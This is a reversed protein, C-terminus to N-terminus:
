PHERGREGATVSPTRIEESHWFHAEANMLGRVVEWIRITLGDLEKPHNGSQPSAQLGRSELWLVCLEKFKSDGFCCKEACRVRVLGALAALLVHRSLLFTCTHPPHSRASGVIAASLTSQLCKTKEKELHLELSWIGFNRCICDSSIIDWQFSSFLLFSRPSFSERSYYLFSWIAQRPLVANRHPNHLM